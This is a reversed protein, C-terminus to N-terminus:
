SRPLRHRRSQAPGASQQTWRDVAGRDGRPILHGDVALTFAALRIGSLILCLVFPHRGSYDRETVALLGTLEDEVPRVLLASRATNM